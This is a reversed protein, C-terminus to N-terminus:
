RKVETVTHTLLYDLWQAYYKSYPHIGDSSSGAPLCGTDDALADFVYLYHAEKDEALQRIVENYEHIRDNTFVTSTESEQATVPTMSQLFLEADPELERLLDILAAYQTYFTDKGAWSLENIGLMVFVKGYQNRAMADLISIFGGEEDRIVKETGINNVTISQVAFQDATKLGAYLMFGQALSNGIFVADSFYDQEVAESEPVPLGWDYDPLLQGTGTRFRCRHIKAGTDLLDMGWFCLDEKPAVTRGDPRASPAYDASGAPYPPRREPTEEPAPSSGPAQSAALRLLAPKEPAAKLSGSAPTRTEAAEPQEAMAAAHTGAGADWGIWLILGLVLVLLMGAVAPWRRGKVKKPHSYVSL